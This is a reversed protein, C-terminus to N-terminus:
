LGGHMAGMSWPRKFSRLVNGAWSAEEVSGHKECSRLVDRAWTIFEENEDSIDSMSDPARTSMSNWSTSRLDPDSLRRNEKKCFADFEKMSKEVKRVDEVLRSLDEEDHLVGLRSQPRVLGSSPNSLSCGHAASDTHPIQSQKLPHRRLRRLQRRPLQGPMLRSTRMSQVKRTPPGRENQQGVMTSLLANSSNIPATSAPDITSSKTLLAGLLSSRAQNMAVVSSRPKATDAVMMAKITAINKAFVEKRAPDSFISLVNHETEPLAQLSVGLTLTMDRVNRAPESMSQAGKLPLLFSPQAAKNESAPNSRTRMRRGKSHHNRLEVLEEASYGHNMVLRQRRGKIDLDRMLGRRLLQDDARLLEDTNDTRPHLAQESSKPRSQLGLYPMPDSDNDCPFHKVM